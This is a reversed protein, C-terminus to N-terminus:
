SILVFTLVWWYKFKEWQCRIMRALFSNLGDCFGNNLRKLKCLESNFVLPQFTDTLLRFLSWLPILEPPSLLVFRPSVQVMTLCASVGQCCLLCVTRQWQTPHSDRLYSTKPLYSQWMVQSWALAWIGGPTDWSAEWFRKKWGYMITREVRMGLVGCMHRKSKNKLTNKGVPFVVGAWAQSIGEGGQLEAAM